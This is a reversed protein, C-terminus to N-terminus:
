YRVYLGAQSAYWASVNEIDKLSLPQAMAGMVADKRAGSKYDRLVKVLYDYPQGALKPQDPAQTKMGDVGHCSGCVETAKKKGAQIDRAAAGGSVLATGAAIAMVVAIRRMM